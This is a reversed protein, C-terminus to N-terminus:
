SNPTSSTMPPPPNPQQEEKESTTGITPQKPPPSLCKTMSFAKKPSPSGKTPNTQENNPNDMQQVSNKLTILNPQQTNPSIFPLHAQTITNHAFQQNTRVDYNTTNSDTNNSNQASRLNYNSVTYPKITETVYKQSKDQSKKYSNQVDKIAKRRRGRQRIHRDNINTHMSDDLSETNNNKNLISDNSTEMRNNKNLTSDNSTKTKNISQQVQQKRPRSRKGLINLTERIIDITAIIFNEDYENQPKAPESPIRSMYDALGTKTGAIHEINFNFPILRDYM